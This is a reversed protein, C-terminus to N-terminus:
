SARKGLGFSLSSFIHQTIVGLESGGKNIQGCIKSAPERSVSQSVEQEANCFPVSNFDVPCLPSQRSGEGIRFARVCHRKEDDQKARRPQLCINNLKSPQRGKSM